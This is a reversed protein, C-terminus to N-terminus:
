KRNSLDNHAVPRGGEGRLCAGKVQTALFNSYGVVRTMAARREYAEGLGRCSPYCSGERSPTCPHTGVTGEEGAEPRAGLAARVKVDGHVRERPPLAPQTRRGNAREARRHLRTEELAHAPFRNRSV